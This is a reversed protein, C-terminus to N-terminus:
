QGSWTMSLLNRGKLRLSYNSWFALEQTAVALALYEMECSSLADNGVFKLQWILAGGASTFVYGVRGRMTNLYTHHSVDVFIMINTCVRRRFLIDRALTGKLYRMIRLVDEWHKRDSNRSFRSLNNVVVAIDPRIGSSVYLLSGLAQGYPYKKMKQIEEVTEPADVMSLKLGLDLPTPTPRSNKMRFKALM